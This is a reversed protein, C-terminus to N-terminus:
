SARRDRRAKRLTAELAQGLLGGVLATVVLVVWLPARGDVTMYSVEVSQSNSLIFLVMLVALAAAVILKIKVRSKRKEGTQEPAPKAM